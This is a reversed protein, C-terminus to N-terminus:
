HTRRLQGLNKPGFQPQIIGPRSSSLKTDVIKATITTRQQNRTTCKDAHHLPAHSHCARRWDLVSCLLGVRITRNVCVVCTRNACASSQMTCTVVAPLAVRAIRRATRTSWPLGFIWGSCVVSIWLLFFFLTLWLLFQLSIKFNTCVFAAQQKDTRGAVFSCNILNSPLLTGNTCLLHLLTINTPGSFIFIFLNHNNQPPPTVNASRAREAFKYDDYMFYSYIHQINYHQIFQSQLKVSARQNRNADNCLRM